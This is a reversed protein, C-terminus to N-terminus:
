LTWCRAQFQTDSLITYSSDTLGLGRNKLVKSATKRFSGRNLDSAPVITKKYSPLHMKLHPTFYVTWSITLTCSGGFKSNTKKECVSNTSCYLNYTEIAIDYHRVNVETLHAFTHNTTIMSTPVRSSDKKGTLMFLFCGMNKFSTMDKKLRYRLITDNVYVAIAVLLVLIHLSWAMCPTDLNCHLRSSQM